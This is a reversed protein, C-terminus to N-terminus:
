HPAFPQVQAAVLLAAAVGTILNATPMLPIGCAEASALGAQSALVFRSSGGDSGDLEPAFLAHRPFDALLLMKKPRVLELIAAALVNASEPPYALTVPMVVLTQSSGARPALRTTVHSQLLQRTEPCRTM